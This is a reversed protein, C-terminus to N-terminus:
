RAMAQRHAAASFAITLPHMTHNSVFVRKREVSSSPADLQAPLLNALLM